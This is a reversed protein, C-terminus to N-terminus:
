PSRGGTEIDAAYDDPLGSAARIAAAMAPIDYAVRRVAVEVARDGDITLM